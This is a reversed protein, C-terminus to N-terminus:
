WYCRVDPFVQAGPEFEDCSLDEGFQPDEICTIGTVGPCTLDGVATSTGSYVCGDIGFANFTMTAPPYGQSSGGTVTATAEALSTEFCATYTDSTTTVLLSFVVWYMVQEEQDKGEIEAWESLEVYIFNTPSPPPATTTPTTSTTPAGGGITTTLVGTVAGTLGLATLNYVPLGLATPPFVTAASGDITIITTVTVDVVSITSGSVM